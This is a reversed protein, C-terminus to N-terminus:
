GFILISLPLLRLVEIIEGPESIRWHKWQRQHAQSGSFYDWIRLFPSEFTKFRDAHWPHLQEETVYMTKSEHSLLISVIRHTLISDEATTCSANKPEVVVDSAQTQSDTTPLGTIKENFKAGMSTKALTKARSISTGLPTSAATLGEGNAEEHQRGLASPTRCKQLGPPQLEAEILGKYPNMVAPIACVIAAASKLNETTKVMEERFTKIFAEIDAELPIIPNARRTIDLVM